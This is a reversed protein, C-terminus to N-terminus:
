TRVLSLFTWFFLVHGMCCRLLDFLVPVNRPGLWLCFPGFFSCMAWASAVACKKSVRSHLYNLGRLIQRCWSKLIKINVKSFRKLYTRLTGSALLETVLVFYKLNSKGAAEKEWYDFFRVINPHQLNKLLDAEEKFRQREPRWSIKVRCM